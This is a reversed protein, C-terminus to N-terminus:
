VITGSPPGAPLWLRLGAPPIIDATGDHAEAVARVIALGLGAGGRTRAEDGRTFREFACDVLERSFGRGQDSVEITTGGDATRASLAITGDGHRLANDVLNGLVQRLRLPDAWVAVDASAHVEVSRGAQAARGSYRERAGDLLKRALLRERRVPLRGESARALVLLDEALRALHDAEEAAASLAERTEPRHDERLLAELETKLVAIPTRLEHSADAVFRREREFSRRLRDLMENLTEGLRRVEDRAAPLPLSEEGSELSVAAARRRMAEVPRLAATALGYGLLSAILVAIPGGIGFSAVLGDLAEDRDGLSQGVAVVAGPAGPLPRALVRSTGELGAVRRDVVVPQQAAARVLAPPLVPRITGGRSALVSGGASLVQSFAEEPDSIAAAGQDGLGPGGQRALAAVADARTALSDNLAEDLDDALRLYIFLAAGALVIIMAAAFVATLRARIPLRRM